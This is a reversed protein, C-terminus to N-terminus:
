SDDGSNISPDLIPYLVYTGRWIDYDADVRSEFRSGVKVDKGISHRGGWRGRASEQGSVGYV